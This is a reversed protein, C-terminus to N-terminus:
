LLRPQGNTVPIRDLAAGHENARSTNFSAGTDAVSSLRGISDFNQQVNRGSPYTISNLEGALNYGYGLTYTACM